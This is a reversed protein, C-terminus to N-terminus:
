HPSQPSFTFVPLCFGLATVVSFLKVVRDCKGPIEGNLDRRNKVLVRINEVVRYIM